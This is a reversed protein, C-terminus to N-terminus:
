TAGRARQSDGTQDGTALMLAVLESETPKRGPAADVVKVISGGQMIAIRNSLGILELLEDTILIVAVDQETLGRILAYIEEKAGADVGRTPNDLILLRPARCLWKALVVKQQNGGSMTSLLASAHGPKIRLDSIYRRAVAREHRGRWLGLATSFLDRASALSINWAASFSAIMGEANREAPIYGLGQRVARQLDPRAEGGEGLEITGSDPPVVGAAGRGFASKGSNLLGGIGLVEGHRVAIDIARYEGAKTLNRARFAIPASGVGRQRAEHYYDTNRERGVMLKHLASESTESPQVDGTLRGDRLVFIRDSVALVETLRHSVFLITGHARLRGILAFFAEEEAKALASTPEDLLIVPSEIGLVLQPVFCARAIEISQRVSFPYDGTRRRVDLDLGAAEVIARAVTIMRRRDLLGSWRTFRGEHSLLLNEYVAINPILAQEQFVRSIGLLSAQRYDRPSIERGYLLIRGADPPLIGSIINFLTSKGAGNEGVIGIIQRRTADLTVGDLVPNGGFRKSIGRVSLATGAPDGDPSEAPHRDTETSANAVVSVARVDAEGMRLAAVSSM